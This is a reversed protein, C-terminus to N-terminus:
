NILKDWLKTTLVSWPKFVSSRDYDRILQEYLEIYQPALVDWNFKQAYQIGGYILKKQLSDDLLLSSIKVALEEYNGPEFLLGSENEKLYEPIGGVRSAIVPCGSAQAEINVLGGGESLSPVVTLRAGKLLSIGDKLAVTGIFVVEDSLSYDSALQKLREEESGEGAIILYLDPFKDKILSFAKILIDVGKSPDLRRFCFIYNEKYKEVKASSIISFDMGSYLVGVKKLDPMIKELDLTLAKSACNVCDSQRLVDPIFDVGENWIKLPAPDFSDPVDGGAITCVIPVNWVRSLMLGILPLPRRIGIVHIIDAKIKLNNNKVWDIVQLFEDETRANLVRYIKAGKFEDTESLTAPWKKTIIIPEIGRSLYFSILETIITEIGGVHPYYLSSILLVKKM